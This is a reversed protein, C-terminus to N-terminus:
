FSGYEAKVGEKRQVSNRMLTHREKHQMTIIRVIVYLLFVACITGMIVYLMSMLMAQAYKNKMDDDMVGIEDDYFWTDNLQDACFAQLEDNDNWFTGLEYSIGWARADFMIRPTVVNNKCFSDNLDCIYAFSMNTDLAPKFTGIDFADYGDFAFPIYEDLEKLALEDYNWCDSRMFRIYDIFSHLLVFIPDEAANNSWMHSENNAAFFKHIKGHYLSITDQFDRFRHLRFANTIESMNAIDSSTHQRKLCCNPWIETEACLYETNYTAFNWVEDDVCHNNDIDGNGGLMSNFIPPQTDDFGEEMHMADNTFDWYPMSFCAYDDGLNRFQTELEWM